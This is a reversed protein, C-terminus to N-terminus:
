ETEKPNLVAVLMNTEDLYKKAHKQLKTPTLDNIYKEYNMLDDPDQELMVLEKIAYSWWNNDQRAEKANNLHIQKIQSIKDESLITDQLNRLITKVGSVMQDVNEPACTM